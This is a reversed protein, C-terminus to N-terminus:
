RELASARRPSRPRPWAVAFLLLSALTLAATSRFMFVAGRRVYLVGAVVYGIGYGLGGHAGNLIGQSTTAFEPPAMEHAFRVAATWTLSFTFGHLLEIVLVLWVGDGSPLLPYLLLRLAMAGHGLLIASQIGIRDLIQQAFFFFPLEVAVSFPGTMGLLLPTAGREETLFIWLFGQLVAFGFGLVGLCFLFVAVDVRLLWAWRTPSLSPAQAPMSAGHHPLPVECDEIRILSSSSSSDTVRTGSGYPHDRRRATILPDTAADTHSGNLQGDDGVENDDEEVEEEEEDDGVPEEVPEGDRRENQEPAPKSPPVSPSVAVVVAVHVLTWVTNAAFVALLTGSLRIALGSFVYTLGCSIAAFLRQQGYLDIDRGLIRLVISDMLPFLPAQFFAQVVAVFCAAPFSLHPVAFGWYAGVALLSTACFVLIPRHTVDVVFSFLPASLFAVFPTISTLLGIQDKRLGIVNLYILPIYPYTSCGALFGFFFILKATTYNWFTRQAAAAAPHAAAAAAQQQPPPPPPCTLAAAAVVM